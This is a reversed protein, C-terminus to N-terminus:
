EVWVVGTMNAGSSDVGHFACYYAYFGPTPFSVTTSDGTSSGSNVIPNAATDGRMTSKRLPHSQFDGAFTVTTGHPVKLCNPEYTLGNVGFNITTTGTTYDGATPCPNVAM